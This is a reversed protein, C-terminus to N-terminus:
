LLAPNTQTLPNCSLWFRNGFISSIDKVTPLGNAQWELIGGIMHYIRTFNLKKMMDFTAQSRSGSRCHLLYTKGRDLKDIKESFAPSNFDINIAGAIHGEAFEQPTRVDLIVFDPNNRNEQTLTFAEKATVDKIIPPLPTKSERAACGVTLIVGFALLAPVALLALRKIRM